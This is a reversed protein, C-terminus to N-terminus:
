RDAHSNQESSSAPRADRAALMGVDSADDDIALLRQEIVTADVRRLADSRSMDRGPAVSRTMTDSGARTAEAYAVIGLPGFASVLEIMLAFFLPLGFGVDAVTVLGRTYWAWFQGVPDPPLTGGRERL